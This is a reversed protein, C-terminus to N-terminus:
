HITYLGGEKFMPDIIKKFGLVNKADVATQPLHNWDNVVRQTFFNKRLNLRCHKKRVKLSHGRTSDKNM